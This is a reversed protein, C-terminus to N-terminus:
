MCYEDLVDVSKLYAYKESFVWRDGASKDFYGYTSNGAYQTLKDNVFTATSAISPVQHDTVDTKEKIVSFQEYLKERVSSGMGKVSGVFDDIEGSLEEGSDGSNLKSNIATIQTELETVEEALLNEVDSVLANKEVFTIYDNLMWYQALVKAVRVDEEREKLDEYHAVYEQFEAEKSIFADDRDDSVVLNRTLEVREVFTEGGNGPITNTMSVTLKVNRDGQFGDSPEFVVNNGELSYSLPFDLPSGDAYTVDVAVEADYDSEESHTFSFMAGNTESIFTDESAAWAMSVKNIIVINADLQVTTDNDQIVVQLLTDAYPEDIRPIDSVLTFSEGSEGMEATFNNKFFPEVVNFDVELEDADDESLNYKFRVQSEGEYIWMNLATPTQTNEYGFAQSPAVIEAEVGSDIDQVTISVSVEESKNGAHDRASISFGDSLSKESTLWPAQYVIVKNAKDLTVDGTTGSSDLTISLNSYETGQDLVNFPIEIRAGENLSPSTNSVTIAPATTDTTDVATEEKSCGALVLAACVASVKFLKADM